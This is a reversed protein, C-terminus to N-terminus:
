RLNDSNVRIVQKKLFRAQCIDTVDKHLVQGFSGGYTKTWSFVFIRDPQGWAPTSTHGPIIIFNVRSDCCVFDVWAENPYTCIKLVQEDLASM